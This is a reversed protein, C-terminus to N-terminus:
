PRSCSPLRRLASDVVDIVLDTSTETFDIERPLPQSLFFYAKSGGDQIRNDDCTLATVLGETFRRKALLVSEKDSDTVPVTYLIPPIHLGWYHGLMMGSDNRFQSLQHDVNYSVNLGEHHMPWTAPPSATVDRESVCLVPMGVYRM